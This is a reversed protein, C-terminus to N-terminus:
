HSAPRSGRMARELNAISRPGDCDVLRTMLSAFSKWAQRLKQPVSTEIAHPAVNEFYDLAAVAHGVDRGLRESLFWKHNEIASWNKQIADNSVTLTRLEIRSDNANHKEIEHIAEESIFAFPFNNVM